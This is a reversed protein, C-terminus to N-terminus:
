EVVESFLNGAYGALASLKESTAIGVPVFFDGYKGDQYHYYLIKAASKDLDYLLIGTFPLASLSGHASKQAAGYLLEICQRGAKIEKVEGVGVMGELYIVEEAQLVDLKEWIGEYENTSLDFTRQDGGNYCVIKYPAPFLDDVIEPEGERDIKPLGLGGACGVLFLCPCILITAIRKM